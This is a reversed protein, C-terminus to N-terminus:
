RGPRAAVAPPQQRVGAGVHDLHLKRRTVLQAALPGERAPRGARFAAQGERVVVGVLAPDHQIVAAGFCEAHEALEAGAGVNDQHGRRHRTQVRVRALQRPGGGIGHDAGDRREPERAGVAGPAGGVERGARQAAPHVLIPLGFPRREDQRAALQVVVRARVGRDRHERRQPRLGATPPWNMSREACSTIPDLRYSSCLYVLEWSMM